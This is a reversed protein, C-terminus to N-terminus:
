QHRQKKRQLEEYVFVTLHTTFFDLDRADCVLAITLDGEGLALIAQPTNAVAYLGKTAKNVGVDTAQASLLVSILLEFTSHYVLETTPNKNNNQLRSFIERRIEKNM